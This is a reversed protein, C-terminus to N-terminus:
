FTARLVKVFVMLSKGKKSARLLAEPNKLTEPDSLDIQPQPRRPDWEPLEDLPLPDENEEWQDYLREIDADRCSLVPSLTKM